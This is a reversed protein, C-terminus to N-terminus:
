FDYKVGRQELVMDALRFSDALGAVTDSRATSRVRYDDADPLTEFGWLAAVIVRAMDVKKTKVTIKTGMERGEQTSREM